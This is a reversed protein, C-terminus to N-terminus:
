IDATGNSPSTRTPPVVTTEGVPSYRVTWRLHLTVRGRRSVAEVRVDRVLGTESVHARIDATGHPAPFLPLVTSSVDTAEVVFVTTGNVERRGTVDFDVGSFVAHIRDGSPRGVVPGIASGEGTSNPVTGNRVTGNRFGVVQTEADGASWAAVWVPDGPREAWAGTRNERYHFREGSPDMRLTRVAGLLVSGNPYRITLTTRRTFSTGTLAREHALSLATVNSLGAQSLGPVPLATSPPADTPLPAPTM